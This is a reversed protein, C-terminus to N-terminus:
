SLLGNKKRPAWHIQELLLGAFSKELYIQRDTCPRAFDLQLYGGFVLNQARDTPLATFSGVLRSKGDTSQRLVTLLIMIAYKQSIKM